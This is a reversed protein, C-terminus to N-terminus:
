NSVNDRRLPLRARPPPGEGPVRWDAARGDGLAAAAGVAQVVALDVVAALAVSGPLRRRLLQVLLAALPIAETGPRRVAAAAAAEEAPTSSSACLAEARLEAYRRGAQACALPM